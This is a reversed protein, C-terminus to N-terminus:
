KQINRKLVAILNRIDFIEEDMGETKELLTSTVLMFNKRPRKKFKKKTSGMSWKGSYLVIAFITDPNNKFRKEYLQLRELEKQYRKQEDSFSSKVEILALIAGDYRITIDPKLRKKLKYQKYLLMNPLIELKKGNIFAVHKNREGSKWELKSPEIKEWADDILDRLGMKLFCITLYEFTSATWGAVTGTCEIGRNKFPRREKFIVDMVFQQGESDLLESTYKEIGDTYRKLLKSLKMEFGGAMVKKAYIGQSKSM